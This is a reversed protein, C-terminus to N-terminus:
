PVHAIDYGKGLNCSQMKKLHKESHITVDMEVSSEIEGTLEGVRLEISDGGPVALDVKDLYQTLTYQMCDNHLSATNLVYTCTTCTPAIRLMTLCAHVLGQGM